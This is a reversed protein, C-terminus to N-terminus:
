RVEKITARELDWNLFCEKYNQFQFVTFKDTIEVVIGTFLRHKTGYKNEEIIMVKYKKGVELKINASQIRKQRQNKAMLYYIRKVGAPSRGLYEAVKMKGLKKYNNLIFNIEQKSYSPMKGM